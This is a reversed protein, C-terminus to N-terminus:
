ITGGDYRRASTQRTFGGGFVPWLRMSEKVCALAVVNPWWERIMRINRPSLLPLQMLEAAPLREGHDMM